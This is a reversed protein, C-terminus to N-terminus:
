INSPEQPILFKDPYREATQKHLQIAFWFHNLEVLESEAFELIQVMKDPAYDMIILLRGLHSGENITKCVAQVVGKLKDPAAVIVERLCDSYLQNFKIQSDPTPPGFSKYKDAGCIFTTVVASALYPFEAIVEKVVELDMGNGITAMFVMTAQFNRTKSDAVGDCIEELRRIYPLVMWPNKFAHAYTPKRVDSKAYAAIREEIPAFPM